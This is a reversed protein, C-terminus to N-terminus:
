FSPASANANTLKALNATGRRIPSARLVVGHIWSLTTSLNKLLSSDGTQSSGLSSYFSVNSDGCLTTYKPSTILPVTHHEGDQRFNQYFVTENTRFTDYRM